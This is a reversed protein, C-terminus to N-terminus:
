PKDGTNTSEAMGWIVFSTHIIWYEGSIHAGPMLDPRDFSDGVVGQMVMGPMWPTRPQFGNYIYEPPNVHGVGVMFSANFPNAGLVWDLQRQAIVAWEPRNLLRAAKFLAVSLGGIASNRASWVFYRYALEGIRRNQPIGGSGYRFPEKLEQARMWRPVQAFANRAAMVQVYDRGHMELAQRWVPTQSHDPLAECIECLAILALPNSTDVIVGWKRSSNEYFFGRVERQGGIWDTEQLRVFRGAMEVAYDRYGAEGTARFMHLGAGIGAGISDYDTSRARIDDNGKIWDFCRRARTLCLRAYRPDRAGFTEAVLAQAWIFVHQDALSAVNCVARRDDPTGRTNDTWHNGERVPDGGIGHHYVYGAADQLKHFYLNGWRVEDLIATKLKADRTLRAVNLLGQMSALSPSSWKLLDTSNHWGGVLDLYQGNDARIADDLHCPANYGTKSPGCRQVAFSSVGKRIADDYVDDAVRFAYSCFPSGGSTRVSVFYRGPATLASLDGVHYSGFDGSVRQLKGDFVRAKKAKNTYVLDAIEVWFTGPANTELGEVVFRKAGHAPYGAQNVLVSRRVPVDAVLEKAQPQQAFTQLAFGLAFSGILTGSTKM